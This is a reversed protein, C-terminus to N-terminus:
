NVCLSSFVEICNGHPSRFTIIKGPRCCSGLAMVTQSPLTIMLLRCIYYLYYDSLFSTGLGQPECHSSPRLCHKKKRQKRECAVGKELRTIIQVFWNTVITSIITWERLSPSNINLRFNFLKCKRGIPSHVSTHTLLSIWASLRLCFDVSVCVCVCCLLSACLCVCLNVWSQLSRVSVWVRVCMYLVFVWACMCVCVCLCMYIYIYIYFSVSLSLIHTDGSYACESKFVYLCM